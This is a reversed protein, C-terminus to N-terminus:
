KMVYPKLISKLNSIEHLLQKSFDNDMYPTDIIYDQLDDIETISFGKAENPKKALNVFLELKAMLTKYLDNIKNRTPNIDTIFLM